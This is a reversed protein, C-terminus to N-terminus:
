ISFNWVEIIINNEANEERQARADSARLTVRISASRDLKIGTLLLFFLKHIPVKLFANIINYQEIRM